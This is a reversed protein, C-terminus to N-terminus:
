AARQTFSRVRLASTGTGRSNSRRKRLPTDRLPSRAGRSRFECKLRPTRALRCNGANLQLCLGKGNGNGDEDTFEVLMDIGDDEDGAGGDM